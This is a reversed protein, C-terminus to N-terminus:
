LLTRGVALVYIKNAGNKNLVKCCEAITAGTTIVDDIILINKRKIKLLLKKNVDFSGKVNKLREDRHLGAQPKNNKTRKLIFNDVPKKTIKAYSNALIASQNYKRKLLKKYHIPVSTIVDIEGIFNKSINHLQKALYPAAHTNDSYKFKTIIFNSNENYNFVSRQLYYIPPNQICNTCLLEPKQINNASINESSINEEPEDLKFQFPDGCKQCMPSNIFDIKIWCESCINANEATQKKGCICKPPLVLNIVATFIKKLM